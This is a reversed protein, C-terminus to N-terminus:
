DVVVSKADIRCDFNVSNERAPRRDGNRAISHRHIGWVFENENIVQRQRALLHGCHNRNHYAIGVSFEGINADLRGKRDDVVCDCHVIHVRALQVEKAGDPGDGWDIDECVALILQAAVSYRKHIHVREVTGKKAAVNPELYLRRAARRRGRRRKVAVRRARGKLPLVCGISLADRPGRAPAIHVADDNDSLVKARRHRAKVAHRAAGARLVNRRVVGAGGGGYRAEVEAGGIDGRRDWLVLLRASTEVFGKSKRVIYRISRHWELVRRHGAEDIRIQILAVIAIIHSAKLHRPILTRHPRVRDAAAGDETKHPLRIIGDAGDDGNRM